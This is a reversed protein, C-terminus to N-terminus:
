RRKANENFYDIDKLLKLEFEPTSVVFPISVLGYYKRFTVFESPTTGQMHPEAVTFTEEGEDEVQYGANKAREKIENERIM